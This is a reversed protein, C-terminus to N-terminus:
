EKHHKIAALREKKVKNAEETWRVNQPKRNLKFMNKECKRDYFYMIKGDPKIRMIGKGRPIEKGSFSCKVM